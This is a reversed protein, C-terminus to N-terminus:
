IRSKLAEADTIRAPLTTGKTEPLKLISLASSILALSGMVIFPVFESTTEGLFMLYPATFSGIKGVASASGVMINRLLTPAMEGTISFNIYFAGILSTKGLIVMATMAVQNVQKIFPAVALCIGGFGMFLSLSLPRGLWQIVLFGGVIGPFELLGSIAANVYRDGSFATINLALGYYVMNTVIWSIYAVILRCRMTPSRLLYLFSYERSNKQVQNEKLILQDKNATSAPNNFKDILNCESSLSKGNIKAMKCLVLEAEETRGSSLLWYPSELIIWYYPIYLIGMLGTARMIWRWDSILYGIIPVTAAGFCYGGYVCLSIVNRHNDGMAENGLVFASTYPLYVFAGTVAMLAIFASINPSFGVLFYLTFEILKGWLLVRRRGFRDALVGGLISGVAEGAM